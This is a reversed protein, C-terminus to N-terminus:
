KKSSRRKPGVFLPGMLYSWNIQENTDDLRSLHVEDLASPHNGILTRNFGVAQSLNHFRFSIWKSGVLLM